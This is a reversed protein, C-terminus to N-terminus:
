HPWLRGHHVAEPTTVCAVRVAPRELMTRSIGEAPLQDRAKLTALPSDDLHIALLHAADNACVAEESCVADDARVVDNACVAQDRIGHIASEM